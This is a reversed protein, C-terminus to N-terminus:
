NRPELYSEDDDGSVILVGVEDAPPANYMRPDPANEAWLVMRIGELGGERESSLEEITKLLNVLPNVEHMMTQLIHMTDRSVDQSGAVNM